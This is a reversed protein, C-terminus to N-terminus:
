SFVGLIPGSFQMTSERFCSGLKMKPGKYVLFALCVLTDLLLAKKVTVIKLTKGPSQVAPVILGNADSCVVRWEYNHNESQEREGLM